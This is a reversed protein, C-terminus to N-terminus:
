TSQPEGAMYALGVAGPGIHTGIVPSITTTFADVIRSAGLRQRALNLMQNALDPIDAYLAALRVTTADGIREEALELARNMARSLTRVKDVPLLLGDQTEIVPRVQLLSGFFNEAWNIRGGKHLYELTGPVFFINTCARAAEAIIFTIVFRAL